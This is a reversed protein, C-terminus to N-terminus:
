IPRSPHDVPLISGESCQKNRLRPKWHPPSGMTLIPYLHVLPLAPPASMLWTSLLHMHWESAQSVASDRM